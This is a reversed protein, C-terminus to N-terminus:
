HGSPISFLMDAARAAPYDALVDYPEELDNVMSCLQIFEVKDGAAIQRFPWKQKDCLFPALYHFARDIGENWLHIGWQKAYADIRMLALLNFCSYSLSLTRVFEFPQEGLFTIQNRMRPLTNERIMKGALGELNLFACMVAVQADHWNGHNNKWTAENQTIPSGLIWLLYDKIWARFAELNEATWERNEPLSAVAEILQCIPHSDIIGGGNKGEGGPVVQAYKLHPRMYTEPEMFWVKLLKGARESFRLDGSLNGAAILVTVRRCFAMWRVIDCVEFDPNVCGDRYIWPGSPNEPDPFSYKPISSYDHADGFPANWGKQTVALPELPLYAEAELLLGATLEPPFSQKKSEWYEPTCVCFNM